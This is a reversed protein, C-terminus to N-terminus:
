MGGGVDPKEFRNFGGVSAAGAAEGAVSEDLGDIAEEALRSGGSM